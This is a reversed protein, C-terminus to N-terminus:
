MIVFSYLLTKLCLITKSQNTNVYVSHSNIEVQCSDDSTLKVLQDSRM